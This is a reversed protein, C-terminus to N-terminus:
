KRPMGIPMLKLREDIRGLTEQIKTLADDSKDKHKTLEDVRAEVAVIRQYIVGTSFVLGIVNLALSVVLGIPITAHYHGTKDHMKGRSVVRRATM